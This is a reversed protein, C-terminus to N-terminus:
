KRLPLDDVNGPAPVISTELEIKIKIQHELKSSSCVSERSVVDSVHEDVLVARYRMAHVTTPREFGPWGIGCFVQRLEELSTERPIVM